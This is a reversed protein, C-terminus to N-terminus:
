FQTGVPSRLWNAEGSGLTGGNELGQGIGLAEFQKLVGSAGSTREATGEGAFSEGDRGGGEGMVDLFQLGAAEDVDAAFSFEREEGYLGSDQICKRGIQLRETRGEASGASNKESDECDEQIWEKQQVDIRYNEFRRFLVSPPCGPFRLILFM